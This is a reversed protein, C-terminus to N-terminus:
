MGDGSSKKELSFLAPRNPCGALFPASRGLMELTCRRVGKGGRGGGQLVLGMGTTIPDTSKGCANSLNTVSLAM